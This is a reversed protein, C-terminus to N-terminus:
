KRGGQSLLHENILAVSNNLAKMGGVMERLAGNLEDMRAHIRGIDNHNPLHRLESDIRRMEQGILDTRERHIRCEAANEADIEDHKIVSLREAVQAELATFRKATVKERNVWWTYVFNAAVIGLVVIERWFRWADYDIM